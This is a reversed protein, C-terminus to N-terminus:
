ADGAEHELILTNLREAFELADDQTDAVHLKQTQVFVNTALGRDRRYHAEASAHADRLTAPPGFVYIHGDPKNPQGAVM